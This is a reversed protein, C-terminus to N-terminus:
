TLDREVKDKVKQFVRLETDYTETVIWSHKLHELYGIEKNLWDILEQKNM